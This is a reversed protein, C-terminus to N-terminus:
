WQASPMTQQLLRIPSLNINEFNCTGPNESASNQSKELPTPHLRGHCRYLHALGRERPRPRGTHTCHTCTCACCGRGRIETRTRAPGRIIDSANLRGARRYWRRYTTRAHAHTKYEDRLYWKWPFNSFFARAHVCVFLYHRPTLSKDSTAAPRRAYILGAHLYVTKERERQRRRGNAPNIRETARPRARRRRAYVLRTTRAFIAIQFTYLIMASRLKWTTIIRLSFFLYVCARINM